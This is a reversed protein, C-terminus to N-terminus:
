FMTSFTPEITCRSVADAPNILTNIYKIVPCCRNASTLFKIQALNLYQFWVYPLKGRSLNFVVAKNDSSIISNPYLCFGLIAACHM